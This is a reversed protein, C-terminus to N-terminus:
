GREDTNGREGSGVGWEGSGVGWEGSGVGEMLKQLRGGIGWAKLVLTSDFFDRQAPEHVTA